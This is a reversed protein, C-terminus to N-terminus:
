CSRRILGKTPRGTAVVHRPDIGVETLLQRPDIALPDRLGAVTFVGDRRAAETVVIGPQARLRVLYNDWRQEIGPMSM